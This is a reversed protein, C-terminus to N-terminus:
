KGERNLQEIRIAARVSHLDRGKQTKPFLLEGREELDKDIKELKVMLKFNDLKSIDQVKPIKIDTFQEEFSAFLDETSM